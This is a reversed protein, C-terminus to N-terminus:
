QWSARSALAFCHGECQAFSGHFSVDGHVQHTHSSAFNAIFLGNVENLSVRLDQFDLYARFFPYYLKYVAEKIVFLRKGHRLNKAHSVDLGERLEDPRCVMRVMEGNDLPEDSELDLGVGRLPPNRVAVAAAVNDNHCISGATGSPWVPAGFTDAPIPQPEFGLKQLAAHACARGARFTRARRYGANTISSTEVSFLPSNAVEDVPRVEIAFGGILEADALARIAAALREFEIRIGRQITM